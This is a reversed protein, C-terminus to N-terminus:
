LAELLPEFDTANQIGSFQFPLIIKDLKKFEDTIKQLYTQHLEARNQALRYFEIYQNLEKPCSVKPKQLAPLSTMIANIFLPGFGVHLKQLKHHYDLTETVPMEEALTVLCFATRKQDDFVATMKEAKNRLPGSKLASLIVHPVELLSLGHGTAPTDVVILDYLPESAPLNAVSKQQELDYIKGLLLLESLGPTASVFNTVFSNNFFVDYITKFRIQRLVYEEFCLQPRLNIMSLFPTVATVSEPTVAHSPSAQNAILPAVRGTANIEVVLVRKKQRAAKLALLASVTTKGVGGKGCVFVLRKTYLEDLRM